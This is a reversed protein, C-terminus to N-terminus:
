DIFGEDTLWTEAVEWPCKEELIVKGNLEAMTEQDLAATIPSLVDEIEPYEDLIAQRVVPAANYAPHYLLDDELTILDYAVIKPANAWGVGVPHEKDRLKEYVVGHDMEVAAAFEFGYRDQLGTLGDARIKYEHEVALSWKGAEPPAVDNNIAAALDSISAIGLDDADSERMMITYTNNFPTYDLWHLGYEELDWESITNYAEDPDTIAEHEMFVVLATGTYEWYIDLAGTELSDRVDLTGGYDTRDIVPIDADELALVTIQGLIWQEAFQKSGVTVGYDTLWEFGTSNQRDDHLYAFVESGAHLDYLNSYDVTWNGDTGTRVWKLAEPKGRIGVMINRLPEAIGQVLDNELDVTKIELQKVRHSMTTVNDTVTVEDGPEVTIVDNFMLQFIGDSDTDENYEEGNITITVETDPQWRVGYIDGQYVVFVPRGPGEIIDWLDWALDVRIVGHGGFLRLLADGALEEELYGHVGGPLEEGFTRTYLIPNGYVAAGVADALGDWGNVISFGDPTSFQERALELGTEVRDEGSLRTVSEVGALAKLEEKVNASVVADGGVIYITEIGKDEILSATEAPLSDEAVLLIPDEESFARAGAVMSDPPAHGQVVFATDFTAGYEDAAHEAIEVATKYRTAGEIRKVELDGTDEVATKVAPTVAAEGGLIYAKSPALDKLYDEVVGPLEDQLTLLIPAETVGALFSAALGDAWGGADDGRAIIVKDGTVKGEAIADKAVEVSTHWRAPGELRIVGTGGDGGAAAVPLLVLCLAVALLLVPWKFVSKM